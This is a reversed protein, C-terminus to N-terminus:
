FSTRDLTAVIRQVVQARKLYSLLFSEWMVRELNSKEGEWDERVGESQRENIKGGM